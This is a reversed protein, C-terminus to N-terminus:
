LTHSVICVTAVKYFQQLQTRCSDCDTAEKQTGNDNVLMPKCHWQGHATDNAYVRVMSDLLKVNWLFRGEFLSTEANGPVEFLSTQM